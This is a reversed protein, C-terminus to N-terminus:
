GTMVRYWMRRYTTNIETTETAKSVIRATTTDESHAMVKSVVRATTTADSSHSTRKGQLGQHESPEYMLVNM